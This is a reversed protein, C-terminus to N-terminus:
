NPGVIGRPNTNMTNGPDSSHAGISLLGAM